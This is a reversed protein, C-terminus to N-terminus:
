KNVDFFASVVCVITSGLLAVIAIICSVLDAMNSANNEFTMVAAISVIRTNVLLMTAVMLLAAAAVPLVDTWLQPGKQASVLYVALAIVAIIATAVVTTDTSLTIFYNTNCNILYAVLGVLAAIVAVVTLISGTTKKM